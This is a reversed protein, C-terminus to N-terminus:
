LLVVVFFSMMATARTTAQAAGAMASVKGLAYM